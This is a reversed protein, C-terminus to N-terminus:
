GRRRSVSRTGNGAQLTPVSLRTLVAACGALALVSSRLGGLRTELGSEVYRVDVVWEYLSVSCRGKVRESRYTM